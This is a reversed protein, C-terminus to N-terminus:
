QKPYLRGLAEAIIAHKLRHGSGSKYYREKSLAEVRSPFSEWHIMIPRTLKERTTRTSGALHLYYRRILNDTQGVYTRGTDLCVLFYVFNM